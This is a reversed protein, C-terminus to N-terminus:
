IKSYEIKTKVYMDSWVYGRNKLEALLERPDYESLPKCDKSVKKLVRGDDLKIIEADPMADAIAQAQKKLNEKEERRKKAWEREYESQCFKCVSAHGDKQSKDARFQDITFERGCKKCVKTEM